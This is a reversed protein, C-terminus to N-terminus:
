LFGATFQCYVFFDFSFLALSLIFYHISFFCFDNLYNKIQKLILLFMKQLVCTILLLHYKWRFTKKNTGM